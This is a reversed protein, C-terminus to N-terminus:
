RICSWQGLSFVRGERLTTNLKLPFFFFRPAEAMENQLSGKLDDERAVESGNM